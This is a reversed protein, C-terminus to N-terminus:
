KVRFPVQLSSASAACEPDHTHVRACTGESSVCVMATHTRANVGSLPAESGTTFHVSDEPPSITHVYTYICPYVNLYIYIYETCARTNMHIYM